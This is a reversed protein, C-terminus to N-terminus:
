HALFSAGASAAPLRLHAAVSAGVDAFTSRRGVHQPVIGPGFALVPVQERTHDTGSWTPDCGHDATIIVLDGPRLRAELEPLRRDFAELASAYGIIDRRHGYISDFDIFNAFLLGGDALADAGELTRDFLAANGHAKFLQGTGQHAFIDGIKGVSIVDRGLLTANRLITSAPPPVAYDRRNGTREFTAASTGV